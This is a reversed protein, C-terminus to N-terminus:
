RVMGGAARRQDVRTPERLNEDRENLGDRGRTRRGTLCRGVLVVVQPHKPGVGPPIKAAMKTEM